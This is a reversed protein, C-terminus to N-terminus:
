CDETNTIWEIRRPERNREQNRPSPSKDRLHPSGFLHVNRPVIRHPDTRPQWLLTQKLDQLHAM